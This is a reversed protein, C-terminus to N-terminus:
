AYFQYIFIYQNVKRPISRSAFATNSPLYQSTSPGTIINERPPTSSIKSSTASSRSISGGVSYTQSCSDGFFGPKCDCSAWGKEDILCSGRFLMNM